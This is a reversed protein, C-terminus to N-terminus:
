AASGGDGDAGCGGCGGGGCGGGARPRPEPLDAGREWDLDDLRFDALGEQGALSVAVAERMLDLRRM